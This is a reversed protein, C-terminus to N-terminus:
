VRIQRLVSSNSIPKTEAAGPPVSKLLLGSIVTLIAIGAGSFLWEKNLTLWDIIDNM